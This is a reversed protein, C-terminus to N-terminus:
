RPRAKAAAALEPICDPCGYPGGRRGCATPSGYRCPKERLEYGAAELAKLYAAIAADAVGISDEDDYHIAGHVAEAVEARIAAQQEPTM